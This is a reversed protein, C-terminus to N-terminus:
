HNLVIDAIIGTALAVLLFDGTDSRRWYYGHPPTRLGYHGWDNVVYTPAHGSGYYHGGRVWYPRPAPRYVPRYVVRPAPRYHVVRPPPPPRHRYDPRDGDHRRDHGRDRDADHHHGHYQAQAPGALALALLPMSSLALLMRKM